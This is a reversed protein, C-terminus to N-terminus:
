SVVRQSHPTQSPQKVLQTENLGIASEHIHTHIVFGGLTCPGRSQDFVFNCRPFRGGARKVLVCVDASSSAISWRSPSPQVSKHRTRSLRCPSCHQHQFACIIICGVRGGIIQLLHQVSAAVVYEVTMHCYKHSRVLCAVINYAELSKFRDYM